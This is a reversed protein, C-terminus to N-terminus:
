VRKLTRKLISGDSDRVYVTWDVQVATERGLKDAFQDRTAAVETLLKRERQAWDLQEEHLAALDADLQHWRRALTRLSPNATKKM